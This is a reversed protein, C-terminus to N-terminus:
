HVNFNYVTDSFFQFCYHKLYLKSLYLHTTGAPPTTATASIDTHEQQMLTNSIVAPITDTSARTESSISFPHVRSVSSSAVAQPSSEAAPHAVLPLKSTTIGKGTGHTTDEAVSLTLGPFAPRDKWHGRSSFDQRNAEQGRDPPVDLVLDVTSDVSICQDSLASPLAPAHASLELGSRHPVVLSTPVMHVIISATQDSMQADTQEDTWVDSACTTNAVTQDVALIDTQGDTTRARVQTRSRLHYTDM